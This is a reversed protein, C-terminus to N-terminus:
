ALGADQLISAVADQDHNVQCVEDAAQKAEPWADGVAIGRGAWRLMGADNPADGIALVHSAEIGMRECLWALSAAKDVGKAVYQLLHADSVHVDTADGFRNAVANAVREVRSAEASFMVKTIPEDLLSAIPGIRDPAFSRATHTAFRQDAPDHHDTYWRDLVELDVAINPEVHRALEIMSQALAPDLPRHDLVESRLPDRILAGNYHIMPTDLELQQHFEVSSRPPRASALVVKVGRAMAARVAKANAQSITKDPGLLTGDLDIAILKIPTKPPTTQPPHEAM